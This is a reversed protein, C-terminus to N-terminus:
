RIVVPSDKAVGEVVIGQPNYEKEIYMVCKSSIIGPEGDCADASYIVAREASFERKSKILTGSGSIFSVKDGLSNVFGDPICGKEAKLELLYYYNKLMGEQSIKSSMGLSEMLEPTLFTVTIVFDKINVQRSGELWLTKQSAPPSVPKQISIKDTNLRDVLFMGAIGLIVLVIIGIAIKKIWRSRPPEVYIMKGPHEMGTDRSREDELFILKKDPSSEKNDMGGDAEKKARMESLIVELYEKTKEQNEKIQKNLLEIDNKLAINEDAKRETMAKLDSIVNNLAEIRSRYENEVDARQALERAMINLKEKLADRESEIAKYNEKLANYGSEFERLTAASKEKLLIFEKNTETLKLNLENDNDKLAESLRREIEHKEADSLDLFKKQKELEGRVEKIDTELVTKEDTLREIELELRKADADYQSKLNKIAEDKLQLTKELNAREANVREEEKKKEGLLSNLISIENELSANEDIKEDVTIKLAAIISDLEEIKNRYEAEIEAKQAIDHAIMDLKDKLIDREEETGTHKVELEKYRSEVERLAEIAINEEKILALEKEVETLKLNLEDKEATLKEIAVQHESIDKDTQEELESISKDKRELEERIEGIDAELSVKEDTLREIELIHKRTDANFQSKLDEIEKDKLELTKGFSVGETNFSEKEKESESLLSNLLSIENEMRSLKEKLGDREGEILKYKVELDNYREEVEKLIEGAANEEKLLSLEREAETLKLNLDKTEAAMSQYESIDIARQQRLWSLQREVAEKESTSIELLRRYEETEESVGTEQQDIAANLKEKLINKEQEIGKYQTEMDKYKSEIDRMTEIATYLDTQVEQLQLEKKEITYRLEDITKDREFIDEVIDENEKLLRHRGSMIEEVGQRLEAIEMNRVIDFDALRDHLRKKDEFAKNIAHILREKEKASTALLTNKEELVKELRSVEKLANLFRERINKINLQGASHKYQPQDQSLLQNLLSDPDMDGSEKDNM